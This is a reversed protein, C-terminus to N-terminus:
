LYLIMTYSVAAPLSFRTRKLFKPTGKGYKINTISQALNYEEPQSVTVLNLTSMTSNRLQTGDNFRSNRAKRLLMM